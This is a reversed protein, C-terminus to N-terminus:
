FGQPIRKSFSEALIVRDPGVMADELSGTVVKQPFFSFFTSASEM